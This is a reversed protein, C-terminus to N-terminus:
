EAWCCYKCLNPKIGGGVGSPYECPVKVLLVVTAEADLIVGGGEGFREWNCSCDVKPADFPILPASCM